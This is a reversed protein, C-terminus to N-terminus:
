LNGDCRCNHILPPSNDYRSSSGAFRDSCSTCADNEWVAFESESCGPNRCQNSKDNRVKIAQNDCLVCGREGKIERNIYCLNCQKDGNRIVMNSSARNGECLICSKSGDTAMSYHIPCVHESSLKVNNNQDAEFANVIVSDPLTISDVHIRLLFLVSLFIM